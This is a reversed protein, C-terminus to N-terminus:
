FEMKVLKLRNRRESPVILTNAAVQVADRFRLRLDLNTTSLISNRDYEGYGNLVYESITNEFRIEDNFLFRLYHSTKFLFYSSYVGGDDQSYQKKHLINQWHSKGDPHISFILLEDFFYDVMNSPIGNFYTRNVGSRREFIHNKEAVLLAGGDRRLITERVSIENLWDRRDNKKTDLSNILEEDFPIFHLIGGEPDNPDIRLYFYGNARHQDKEGYFGTAVLWKNMNDYTYHADYTLRGQFPVQFHRFEDSAFRYEFIEHYHQKRRNRFNDKQLMLYLNGANDVAMQSFDETYYFEEPSFSKDWLLKMRNIDFVQARIISQKEIYYILAKSYDESRVIEFDPTFFLFGFNHVTSSDKLNAAPDFKDAKLITNGKSRFYYFITFDEQSPIIGLIKASRHDLKLEKSWSMHMQEDFAQVEFETTRNRFLLTRGKLEGILEYAAESRLPIDESVTIKQGSLFLPFLLIITCLSIKM